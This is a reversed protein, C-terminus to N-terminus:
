FSTYRELEQQNLNRVRNIHKCPRIHGRKQFDPCSCTWKGGAVSEVVRYRKTDDSDSPVIYVGAEKKSGAQQVFRDQIIMAYAQESIDECFAKSWEYLNASKEAYDVIIDNSKDAIDQRRAQDIISDHLLKREDERPVFNYPEGYDGAVVVMDGAWSGVLDSKIEEGCGGGYGDSMLLAMAFMTGDGSTGFEMIKVGDNFISPNIVQRKTVNVVRYYQGM